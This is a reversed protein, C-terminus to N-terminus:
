KEWARYGKMQGSSDLVQEVETVNIQRGYKESLRRSVEEKLRSMDVSGMEEKSIFISAAETEYGVRSRKGHFFSNPGLFIFALILVCMIDYQWSGREYSWFLVKKLTTLVFKM